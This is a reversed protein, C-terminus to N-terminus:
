EDEATYDVIVMAYAGASASITGNSDITISTGDPKVLGATSTTAISPQTVTAWSATTGNTTLFKGSNGSQSPLEHTDINGSGLVTTNNITKINTGSTLKTQYTASIDPIDSASLNAGSTVLGKSDYTIKCKTAGTIATNAAVAGDAKDLSAQVDSNLKLKTVSGATLKSGALESATTLVYNGNTTLAGSVSLNQAKTNGILQTDTLASQQLATDAKAGQAATAFESVNHTVINGYADITAAVNDAKDLSDQVSNALKNKTVSSTALKSGSLESATTLVSNGNQTLTGSVALNQATTNGTLHTSNLADAQLSTSGLTAGSRITSLDSITDQKNNLASNIYTIAYIKTNADAATYTTTKLDSSTLANITGWSATTGNTTLYKGSQGSQSPLGEPITPKNTLDNYSGSTAVTSLSSSEVFDEKMLSILKSLGDVSLVKM